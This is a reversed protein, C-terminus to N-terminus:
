LNVGKRLCTTPQSLTFRRQITWCTEWIVIIHRGTYTYGFTVPLGSSHSEDVENNPNLLVSETEEKTLGHEAVHQVNGDPEDDLDWLISVIDM